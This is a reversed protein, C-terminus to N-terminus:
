ITFHYSAVDTQLPKNTFNTTDRAIAKIECNKRAILTKIQDELFHIIRELLIKSGIPIFLNAHPFRYKM